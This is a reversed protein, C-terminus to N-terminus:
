TLLLYKCMIWFRCFCSQELGYQSSSVAVFNPLHWLLQETTMHWVYHRWSMSLSKVNSKTVPPNGECITLIASSQYKRLQQCSPITSSIVTLNSTIQSAMTSRHRTIGYPLISRLLCQSLYHSTSQRCWAMVQVLTSENTLNWVSLLKVTLAWNNIRYLSNSYRVKVMVAFDGM